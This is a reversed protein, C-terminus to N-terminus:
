SVYAYAVTAAGTIAAATAGLSAPNTLLTSSNGAMIPALQTLGVDAASGLLANPTAAVVCIGAYVEIDTSPTYTGGPTGGGIATALQLTKASRSGWANTTDDVTTALVNRSMDLLCFWQNTPTVAATASSVFTISSVTRGKPIVMGGAVKLTGSTLVLNSAAIRDIVTQTISGTPLWGGERLLDTAERVGISQPGPFYGVSPGGSM